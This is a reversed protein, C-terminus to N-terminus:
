NIFTPNFLILALYKQSLKKVKKYITFAQSLKKISVKRYLESKFDRSNSIKLRISNFVQFYFM